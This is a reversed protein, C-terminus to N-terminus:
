EFVISLAQSIQDETFYAGRMDNEVAQILADGTYGFWDINCDRYFEAAMRAQENWDAGCHEVGYMAQEETFQYGYRDPNDLETVLFLYVSHSSQPPTTSLYMYQAAFVAQENWDVRCNDFAYSIQEATFGSGELDRKLMAQSKGDETYSTATRIYNTALENWDAGCNRAAYDAQEKTFRKNTTLTNILGNPSAYESTLYQKASICAQENWDADLRKIAENAEEETFGAKRCLEDKVWAESFGSPLYSIYRFAEDSWNAGCNKVGFEAQPSEFGHSKLYSLLSKYSHASELLARTAFLVAGKDSFLNSVAFNAESDSFGRSSLAANIDDPQTYTLYGAAAILAQESWNVSAHEVGYVAQEHTFASSEVLQICEPQSIGYTENEEVVKQARAIAQENWDAGCNDAAYYADIASFGNESLEVIIGRYSYGHGNSLLEDAKELAEIQSETPPQEYVAKISSAVEEDTFDMAALQIAADAKSVLQERLTSAIRTAQKVWDINGHAVGYDAQESTFDHDLLHTRLEDRTIGNSKNKVVETAESAAQENWNAECNDAGYTAQENDFGQQKLHAILGEYSYGGIIHKLNDKAAIIARENWDIQVNDVGAQAQDQTFGGQEVVYLILVDGAYNVTKLQRVTFIRAQENWDAGCNDAAYTADEQSFNMLVLKQVLADRSYGESSGAGTLSRAQSLARKRSETLTPDTDDPTDEDPGPKEDTSPEEADDPKLDSSEKVGYWAIGEGKWGRSQLVSNEHADATYHHTGSEAYPNYLRYLTVGKEDDSYWGIKEDSWGLKQLDQYENRDITYHHDGGKVYPNFLRYVPTKSTSPATWAKGEKKWGIEELENYENLDATYLHEGTYPNYLRWMDNTEAAQATQPVTLLTLLVAGFALQRARIIFSM